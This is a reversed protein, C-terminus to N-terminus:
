TKQLLRLLYPAKQDLVQWASVHAELADCLIKSDKKRQGIALLAAGLNGEVKAWELPVRERTDEFLAARYAAVAQQLDATGAEHEGLRVLAVGLNNQTKAWDLPVRERTYELLAARDTAVARQLDATGAEREGLDELAIGLNNQTAAWKLPVRERTDELLAARYAAAARQLDATGAEREGLDELAVGLNNQTTAWELPVKERTRELLAARYAAVAQQLDSTGSEREGLDGLATGLNNETMAWGLPVWERPYGQLLQQYYSIAEKLAANDGAQEGYVALSAALSSKVQSRMDDTWGEGQTQPLLAKVKDIFPALKDKVYRGERTAVQTYQTVVVLQLMSALQSWFELPLELKQNFSLLNGSRETTAGTTWFIRLGSNHGVEILNGWIVLDAHAKELYGQARAVAHTEAVETKNGAASITRPIRIVEIGTGAAPGHAENGGLVGQLKEVQDAVANGWTDGPDKEFDAVAVCFNRGDCTPIPTLEKAAWGTAPEVGPHERIEPWNWWIFVAVVFLVPVAVRWGWRSWAWKLLKIIQEIQEPLEPRKGPQIEPTESEKAM